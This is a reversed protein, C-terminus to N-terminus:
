GAGDDERRSSERDLQRSVTTRVIRRFLLVVAALVALLVLAEVVGVNDM